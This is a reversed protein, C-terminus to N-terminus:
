RETSSALKSKSVGLRLAVWLRVLQVGQRFHEAKIHPPLQKRNAHKVSNYSRAFDGAFDGHPFTLCGAVEQLLHKVRGEVTTANAAAPTRGAEILAQYGLAELVIGLQSLVADVTVGELDLLQVFPALGRDYTAALKLWRSIGRTGIDSFYFLFRDSPSWSPEAIGTMATRVERWNPFTKGSANESTDHRSAAQHSQFNIPHWAAIRALNRIAYHLRLHEDWERMTKTYTEVYVTSRYQVDPSWGGPASGVVTAKLALPQALKLDDVPTMTTTVEWGGGKPWKVSTKHAAFALWYSLGDIQSRLGNLQLFDTASRAKEIAYRARITGVGIGSGVLQTTAGASQCGILAVPGQNDIYDLETPTSYSYRTRDPDDAYQIGASWWRARIDDRSRFPVRLRVGDVDHEYTASMLGTDPDGDFLFGIRPPELQEPM